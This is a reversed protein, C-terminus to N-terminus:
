HATRDAELAPGKAPVVCEPRGVYFGQACDVGYEALMALTRADEVGEAVTLKGLSHAVDTISKVVERDTANDDMHSVFEMDIKLHSTPLHKLYTFSGFGTGFDDLAIGCGLDALAEVFTRATQMNSMAATETIEFVLSGPDVGDAIAARIMALIQGDGISPAALNISVREGERALDLGHATVWRDIETILGVREATPLFASPPVLEGNEGLMRLLLERHSVEGTAVDIMPQAYLLFRDERLAARIKEVWSMAGHTKGTYVVVRDRGLEKAEYLAMDAAVLVDDAVLTEKGDFIAIGISLSPTGPVSRAAVRISEAVRRAEDADAEPLVIAFEDGGLRAFVDTERARTAIAAAVGKLVRDGVAHGQTDNVLKFNDVDIMLVAGHRGYRAVFRLARELEDGFRRRNYLGTLPDHSAQYLLQTEMRKRDTVDQITGQFRVVGGNKVTADARSVFNHTEGDAGRLRLELAFGRNDRMAAELASQLEPRDDPDVLQETEAFSMPTAAPLGLLRAGEDSFEVRDKEVDWEWSGLGAIQQAESLRRRSQWLDRLSVIQRTVILVLVIATLCSILVNPFFPEGIDIRIFIAIAGLIAVYPLWANRPEEASRIPEESVLPRQKTAAVIICATSFEYVINIVSEADYTGHLVAYGWVLDGLVLLGIAATLWRLPGRVQPLPNVLVAAALAAILTTDAVPYAITVLAELASSSDLVNPGLLFYVFAAGAGLGVIACDLGLELTQRRNRPVTPFTLVGAMMLPYFALFFVDAISPYPLERGSLEAGLELLSGVEQAAVALALLIWARRLRGSDGARRSALWAAGVAVLGLPSQVIDAFTSQALPLQPFLHWAAYLALFLGVFLYIPPPLGVAKSAPDSNRRTSWRDVGNLGM